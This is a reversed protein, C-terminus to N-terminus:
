LPPKKPIGLSTTLSKKFNRTEKQRSCFNRQNRTHEAKAYHHKAKIGNLFPVVIVSRENPM